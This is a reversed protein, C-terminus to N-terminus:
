WILEEGNRVRLLGEPVRVSLDVTQLLHAIVRDFIPARLTRSGGWNGGPVM